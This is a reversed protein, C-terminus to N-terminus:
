RERTVWIPSSWAENGDEQVLHFYVYHQGTLDLQHSLEVKELGPTFTEQIKGDVILYVKNITATGEAELVLKPMKAAAVVEGMWHNGATVKLWIKDTAGYTRRAQMARFISERTAEEAWVCAYSASTSMHDSSAIFGFHYGRALGQHVDEEFYVTSRKSLESM